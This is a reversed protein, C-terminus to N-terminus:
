RHEDSSWVEDRTMHHGRAYCRIGYRGANDWCRDCVCGRIPPGGPECTPCPKADVTRTPPQDCRRDSNAPVRCCCISYPLATVTANSM